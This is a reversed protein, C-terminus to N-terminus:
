QKDEETEALEIPFLVAGIISAAISSIIIAFGFSVSPLLYRFLMSFAAAFCIVILDKRSNRAAPIIIAIFMGYLLIGMAATVTAPLINGAIAGAATGGTWGLASISILGYMYQPVLKEKQSSAVAFIEDTIGFSAIMRHISTFSNDLKQSLSLGMLSYRLNIVFQTAAMEIIAGGAAIIEVGAAQGASTLNTLSIIIANLATLGSKVAMIGFGFSVSFYGLAIPIGHSLGKRFSLKM